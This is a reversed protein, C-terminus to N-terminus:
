SRPSIFVESLRMGKVGQGRNGRELISLPVPPSTLGVAKTTPTEFFYYVVFKVAQPGAESIICFLYLGPVLSHRVINEFVNELKVAQLKQGALNIVVAQEPLLEPRDCRIHLRSNADYISIEPL